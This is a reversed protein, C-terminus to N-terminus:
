KRRHNGIRVNHNDIETQRLQDDHQRIVARNEPPLRATTIEVAAPPLRTVGNKAIHAAILADDAPTSPLGRAATKWHWGPPRKLALAEVLTMMTPKDLKPGPLNNLRTLLVDTLIGHQYERTLLAKRAPTLAGLPSDPPGAAVPAAAFTDVPKATEQIAAETALKKAQRKAERKKEDEAHVHDYILGLTDDWNWGLAQKDRWIKLCAVGYEPERNCRLHKARSAVIAFDDIQPGPDANIKRLLDAWPVWCVWGDILIEDREPSWVPLAPPDVAVVPEPPAPPPPPAEPRKPSPAPAQPPEPPPPAPPPPAPPPPPPAPPEPAAPLAAKPGEIRLPTPADTVPAAALAQLLQARTSAVGRAFGAAEARRYLDSVWGGFLQHFQDFADALIDDETAIDPGAKETM